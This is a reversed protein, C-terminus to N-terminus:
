ITPGSRGPPPSLPFLDSPYQSGAEDNRIACDISTKGGVYNSVLFMKFKM